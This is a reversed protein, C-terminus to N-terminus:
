LTVGNVVNSPQEGRLAARVSAVVSERREADAEESYWAEHPTTVVREHDRLPHAAAPPEQEFVDIGAAVLEGAELAEVLADEDVIGGRAVNVLTATDKMRALADADILGRTEDTLPSHVTVHDARELLEARDVLTAERGVDEPTLYPDSALVDAGLAVVREGVARGIRGYGIVGVTSSSFRREIPAVAESKWEGAAVAANYHKLRRANALLMAVAHTAVEEICYDPVNVVAIERDAAAEVDINDYGIGWRAVIRCDSLAEIAAEDVAWLTNLLADARALQDAREGPDDSLEEVDALDGLGEREVSLDEFRHDTVVVTQRTM